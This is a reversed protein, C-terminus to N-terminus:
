MRNPERQQQQQQQQKQRTYCACCHFAMRFVNLLCLSCSARGRRCNRLNAFCSVPLYAHAYRLAFMKCCHLTGSLLLLRDVYSMIYLIYIHEFHSQLYRLGFLWCLSELLSLRKSRHNVQHRFVQSDNAHMNEILAYSNYSHLLDARLLSWDVIGVSFACNLM